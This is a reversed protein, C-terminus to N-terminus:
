SERRLKAIFFGDTGYENPLLLISGATKGIPKPLTFPELKFQPNNNLFREIVMENEEPLVTCTSYIIAGSPKVYSSVNNLIKSELEPLCAIEEQSKYRIEPKKRIIGLGSCPVDALVIEFVGDFESNHVSADCLKTEICEIGQRRAGNEIIALKHEYIDCATIGGTNEMMQALVFAKGGPAACADLVRDGPKALSTLAALQSASDQVAIYGSKYANLEEINGFDSIIICNDLFEHRSANAGQEKILSIAQEVNCKLTNIRATVKPIENNAALLKETAKAGFSDIFKSTLWDPHSYKVSLVSILEGTIEPLKDVDRSINRLVANVFGAAKPNDRKAQTVSRNVAAFSPIKSLFIIQYVGVRLIDLIKPSIRKIKVTSYHAIYYDCLMRNQLVGYVIATVLSADRTDLGAASIEKKLLLNSWANKTRIASLINVAVDRADKKSM